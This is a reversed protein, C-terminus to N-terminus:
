TVMMHGDHSRTKLLISAHLFPYNGFVSGPVVCIAEGQESHMCQIGFVMISGLECAHWKGSLHAEGQPYPQHGELGQTAVEQGGVAKFPVLLLFLFLSLPLPLSFHTPVFDCKPFSIVLISDVRLSSELLDFM